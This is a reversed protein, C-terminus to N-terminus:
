SGFDIVMRDLPLERTRLQPAGTSDIVSFREILYPLGQGTVGPETTVQFHLHPLFSEGSNGVLGLVQGRRVRDGAAVRLSSPQLHMYTAFQGQALKLVVHNGCTICVPAFPDLSPVDGPVNDPVGDVATAIVGDAVALVEQGYGYYSPNNALKGSRMEGNEVKVWDIAYRRAAEISGNVMFTNQRHYTTTGTAGPGGLVFWNGGKLPRGLVPM